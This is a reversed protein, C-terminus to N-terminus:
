KRKFLQYTIYIIYVIYLIAITGWLPATVLAWSWDVAGMLKLIIFFVTLMTPIELSVKKM